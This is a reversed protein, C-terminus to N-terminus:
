TINSLIDNYANSIDIHRHGPREFTMSINSYKTDTSHYAYLVYAEAETIEYHLIYNIGAHDKATIYYAHNVNDVTLKILEQLEHIGGHLRNIGTSVHIDFM